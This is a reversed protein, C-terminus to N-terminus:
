GQPVPDAPHGDLSHSSPFLSAVGAAALGMAMSGVYLWAYSGYRDYLWGGLLPGLAMGLSSLMTAAGLVTGLLLVSGALVCVRPGRRDSLMGWGFGGLGMGLFAWTMAASLGARSWGTEMGM